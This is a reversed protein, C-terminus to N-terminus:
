QEYKMVPRENSNVMSDSAMRNRLERIFKRDIEAEAQSYISTYNLRKLAEDAQFLSNAALDPRKLIFYQYYALIRKANPEADNEIRDKILAYIKMANQANIYIYSSYFLLNYYSSMFNPLMSYGNQTILLSDLTQMYSPLVQYDGRDLAKDICMNLHAARLTNSAKKNLAYGQYVEIESFSAGAYLAEVQENYRATLEKNVPNRQVFFTIVGLIIGVAAAVTVMASFFGIGESYMSSGYIMRLILTLGGYLIITSGVTLVTLVNEDNKGQNRKHVLTVVPLLKIKATKNWRRKETDSSKYGEWGFIEIQYVPFKLMRGYIYTFLSFTYFFIFLGFFTGFTASFM